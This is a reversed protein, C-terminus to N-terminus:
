AVPEAASLRLEYEFPRQVQGALQGGAWLGGLLLDVHGGPQARHAQYHPPVGVGIRGQGQRPGTALPAPLGPSGASPRHASNM